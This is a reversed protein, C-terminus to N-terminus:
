DEGTSPSSPRGRQRKGIPRGQMAEIEDRFRSNGLPYNYTLCAQLEHIDTDPLQNRFLARYALQRETSSAGLAQYVLQQSILNDTKGWANHHYSTWPYQEPREVMGATVPNLEIYRMCTLLYNDAQVLSAKHRGEWLTVSRRYTKNIYGVYQRGLYQMLRSIGTEDQPTLLLHVHNTMLVYAHLQVGYRRLGRGLCDLYFHYDDEAFFCANRNNGRQVLHVPIHPLYMRPKRPM